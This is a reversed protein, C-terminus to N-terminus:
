VFVHKAFTVAHVLSHLIASAHYVIIQINSLISSLTESVGFDSQKLFDSLIYLIFHSVNLNKM